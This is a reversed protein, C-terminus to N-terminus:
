IQVVYYKSAFHQPKTGTTIIHRGVLRTKVWNQDWVKIGVIQGNKMYYGRFIATHGKYSSGSFTAIVTGPLVNQSLIVNRGKKWSTTVKARQSLASVLDACEGYSKGNYDGAQLGYTGIENVWISKQYPVYLDKTSQSVLLEGSSGCAKWIGQNQLANLNTSTIMLDHAAKPKSAQAPIIVVCFILSLTILIILGSKTKIKLQIMEINLM